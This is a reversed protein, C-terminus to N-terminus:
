GGNFTFCTWNEEHFTANVQLIHAFFTVSGSVSGYVTGQVQLLTTWTGPVGAGRHLPVALCHSVQVSLPTGVVAHLHESTAM